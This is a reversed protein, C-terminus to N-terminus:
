KALKQIGCESTRTMALALSAVAMTASHSTEYVRHSEHLAIVVYGMYSVIFEHHYSDMCSNRGYIEMGQLAWSVDEHVQKLWLCGLDQGQRRVGCVAASPRDWPLFPYRQSGQHPRDLHSGMTQSPLLARKRLAQGQAGGAM